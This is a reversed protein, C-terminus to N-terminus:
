RKRFRIDPTPETLERGQGTNFRCDLVACWGRCLGNTKPPFQEDVRAPIGMAHVARVDLDLAQGRMWEILRGDDQGRLYVATDRRRPVLWEIRTEVEQVEGSHLFALAAYTDLQDQAEPREAGRPVYRKGSKWDVVVLRPPEWLVLDIIGRIWADEGDFDCPRCERDVALKREAQVGARACRASYANAVHPFGAPWDGEGNVARELDAHIATGREAAASTLNPIGGVVREM